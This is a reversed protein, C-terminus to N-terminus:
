GEGSNGGRGSKMEAHIKTQARAEKGRALKAHAIKWTSIEEV